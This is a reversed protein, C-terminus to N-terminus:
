PPAATTVSTTAAQLLLALRWVAVSREAALERAKTVGTEAIDFAQVALGQEALWVSNSGEGDAACLM